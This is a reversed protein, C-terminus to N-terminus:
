SKEQITQSIFRADRLRWAQRDAVGGPGVSLILYVYGDWAAELDTASPRAPHDPHTHWLGVIELGDHRAANDAALFDDPDLVYRDGLRDVALNRASEIREVLVATGPVRGILLGCVEHPYGRTALRDLQQLLSSPISLVPDVAVPTPGSPLQVRRGLDQM